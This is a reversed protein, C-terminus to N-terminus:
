KNFKNVFAEIVDEPSPIIGGMRGYFEVPTKGNVALRVDEVMQGMSMEVTLIAKANKTHEIYSEAPFPWLTIPRILGVKIGEERLADFRKDFETFPVKISVFNVETSTKKILKVFVDFCENYSEDDLAIDKFDAETAGDPTFTYTADTSVLTESDGAFWGVFNCNENPIHLNKYFFSSKKNTERIM